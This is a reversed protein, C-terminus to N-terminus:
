FKDNKLKNLKNLQKSFERHDIEWEPNSRNLKQLRKIEKDRQEESLNHYKNKIAIQEGRTFFLDRYYRPLSSPKGNIFTTYTQNEVHYKKNNIYAEGIGKSMLAFENARQLRENQEKNTKKKFVYYTVYNISQRTVQGVHVKGGQWIKDLISITKIHLNFMIAHYHPRGKKEGYEGVLYYKIKDMEPHERSQYKRLRKLFNQCHSKDLSPYEHLHHNQKLIEEDYTLTIFHASQSIKEEITLRFTWANAHNAICNGCYGCPVDIYPESHAKRKNPNKLRIRSVCRM